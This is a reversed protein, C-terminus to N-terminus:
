YFFLFFSGCVVSLSQSLTFYPIFFNANPEFDEVIIALALYQVDNDVFLMKLSIAISNYEEVM